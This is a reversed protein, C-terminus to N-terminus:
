RRGRAGAPCPACPRQRRLVALLVPHGREVHAEFDKEPWDPLEARLAAIAAQVRAERGETIMGGSLQEETRYYLERLLQAKWGNWTSPGVARIDAVTLVLLLRLRELSQVVDAFDAITQIDDIDRKFATNSMLLHYRVLWSVTETEEPTLGLRPCLQM